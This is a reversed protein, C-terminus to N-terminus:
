CPLHYLEGGLLQLIGFELQLANSSFFLGGPVALPDSNVGVVFDGTPCIRLILTRSQDSVGVTKGLNDTQIGTCIRQIFGLSGTTIVLQLIRNLDDNSSCQILGFIIRGQGSQGDLNIVTCRSLAIHSLTGNGGSDGIVGTRRQRLGAAHAGGQEVDDTAHQHHARSHQKNGALAHVVGLLM